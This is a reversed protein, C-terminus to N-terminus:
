GSASASDITRGSLTLWLMLVLDTPLAVSERLMYELVARNASIPSTRTPSPLPTLGHLRALIELRLMHFPDSVLLVRPKAQQAADVAPGALSDRRHVLLQAAGQISALSTRGASELLMADKPIGRRVLYRRGAAAESILDGPRRGGTLVVQPARNTTYLGFAHDLRSKLVPSPRGGYQAAGLVVIADATGASARRSWGAICLLVIFWGAGLVILARTAFRVFRPRPIKPAQRVM